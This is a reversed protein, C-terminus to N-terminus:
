SHEDLLLQVRNHIVAAAEEATKSGAWFPGAEESVINWIQQSYPNSDGELRELFDLVDPMYSSGDPKKAWERSVGENTRRMYYTNGDTDISTSSNNEIGSRTAPVYFANLQMEDSLLLNLFDAIDETGEFNSNVAVYYLPSAMGLYDTQGPYGVFHLKGSYNKLIHSIQADSPIFEMGMLVKRELLADAVNTAPKKVQGYERCIELLRIFTEGDFYSEGKDPDYFPCSNTYFGGLTMLNMEPSVGRNSSYFAGQFDGQELIDLAQELTWNEEPWVEDAVLLLNLDLEPVVGYIKGDITMCDRAAPFLHALNEETLYDDLPALIGKEQLPVFDDLQTVIIDPGNGSSLEALVREPSMDANEVRIDAGEHEQNYVNACRAVINSGFCDLCRISDGDEPLTDSLALCVGGENDERFLVLGEKNVTIFCRGELISNPAIGAGGFSFLTTEKGSRLNWARLQNTHTYYLIGEPTVTFQLLPTASSEWLTVETGSPSDLRFLQTRNEDWLSRSFVLSGDPMHFATELTQMGSDDGAIETEREGEPGVVTLSADKGALYQRSDADCWWRGNEPSIGEYAATVDVASLLKGDGDLSLVYYGSIDGQWGDDTRAFLVAVRDDTVIDLCLAYGQPRMEWDTLIEKPIGKELDAKQCSLFYQAGEDGIVSSLVYRADWGYASIDRRELPKFSLEPEQLSSRRLEYYSTTDPIAATEVHRFGNQWQEPTLLGDPNGYDVSAQTGSKEKGKTQGLPIGCGPCLFILCLLVAFSSLSRKWVQKRWTKKMKMM